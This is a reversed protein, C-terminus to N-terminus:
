GDENSKRIEVGSCQLASCKEVLRQLDDRRGPSSKRNMITVFTPFASLSSRIPRQKRDYSGQFWQRAERAEHRTWLGSILENEDGSRVIARV